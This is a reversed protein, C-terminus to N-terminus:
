WGQRYGAGYTGGGGWRPGAYADMPHPLSGRPVIRDGFRNVPVGDVDFGVPVLRDDEPNHIGKAEKARLEALQKDRGAQILRRQELEAETPPGPPLWGNVKGLEAAVDAARGDRSFSLARALALPQGSSYLDGGASLATSTGAPVQPPLEGFRAALQAAGHALERVRGDAAAEDSAVACFDEAAARVAAVAARQRDGSTAYVRDREAVAADLEARLAALERSAEIEAIRAAVANLKETLLHAAADWDDLDQRASAIRERLQASVADGEGLIRLRDAELDQWATTSASAREATTALQLALADRMDQLTGLEAVDDGQLEDPEPPLAGDGQAAELRLRLRHATSPSCGLADSVERESAGSAFLEAGRREDDETLRRGPSSDASM